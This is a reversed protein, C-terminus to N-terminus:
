TYSGTPSVKRGYFVAHTFQMDRLASLQSVSTPVSFSVPRWNATVRPWRYPGYIRHANWTLFDQGNSPLGLVLAGGERTVCWSRAVQMVDGYPNLADGYRGLGSHELSSYSVVADFVPLTGGRYRKRFDGPLITELQPHESHLTGYELTMVKKAGAALLICEVWPRESGIVLATGGKIEEFSQIVRYLWNTQNAGYTGKLTGQALQALYDSVQERTWTRGGGGETVIHATTHYSNQHYDKGM